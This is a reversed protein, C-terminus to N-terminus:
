FCLFFSFTSSCAEAAELLLLLLELFFFLDLFCEAIVFVIDGDIVVIAEGVPKGVPEGVADEEVDIHGVILRDDALGVDGGEFVVAVGVASALVVRIGFAPLLLELLLLELFDDALGVAVGGVAVALLDL